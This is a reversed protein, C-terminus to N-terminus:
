QGMGWCYNAVGEPDVVLTGVARHMGAAEWHAKVADRLSIQMYPVFLNSVFILHTFLLRFVPRASFLDRGSEPRDGGPFSAAVFQFPQM